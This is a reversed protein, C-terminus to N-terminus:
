LIVCNPPYLDKTNNYKGDKGFWEFPCVIEKDPNNNLIAAMLSFTSNSILFHECNLLDQFDEIYDKGEAYEFELQNYKDSNVNQRCWSIDDSFIRFKRQEKVGFFYGLSKEIYENTIPPHFNSRHVFDGRRIHVGVVKNKVEYNFNFIRRIEDICWDFYRYSQFQGHLCVNDIAPIEEYTFDKENYYELNLEEDCYKIFPSHYVKQGLHHPWKIKSCIRYDLGYRISHSILAAWQFLNNGLGGMSKVSVM